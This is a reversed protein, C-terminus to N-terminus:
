QVSTLSQFKTYIYLCCLELRIIIFIIKGVQYLRGEPSFVTIYRDFGGSSGRSMKSIEASREEVQNNLIFLLFYRLSMHVAFDNLRTKM